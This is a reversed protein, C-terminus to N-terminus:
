SSILMQQLDGSTMNQLQHYQNKFDAFNSSRLYIRIINAELKMYKLQSASSKNSFFSCRLKDEIWSKTKTKVVEEISKWEECIYWKQILCQIMADCTMTLKLSSPM